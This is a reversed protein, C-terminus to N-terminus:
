RTTDAGECIWDAVSQIDDSSFPARGLPMQSGGCLNKGSLKQLVYSREPHRPEIMQIEDCCEDAPVGIQLAIQGAGFSHCIEGACSDFLPVIDRSFQRPALSVCAGADKLPRGGADPCSAPPLNLSLGGDSSPSSRTPSTGCGVILLLAGCCVGSLATIQLNLRQTV